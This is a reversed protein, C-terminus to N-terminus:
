VRLLEKHVSITLSKKYILFIKVKFNLIFTFLLEIM